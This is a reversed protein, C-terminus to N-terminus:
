TSFLSLPISVLILNMNAHSASCSMYVAGPPRNEKLPSSVSMGLSWTVQGLDSWLWAASNSVDDMDGAGLGANEPFSTCDIEKVGADHQTFPYTFPRAEKEGRNPKIFILAQCGLVLIWKLSLFHIVRILSPQCFHQTSSAESAWDATDDFGAAPPAPSAPPSPGIPVHSLGQRGVHCM